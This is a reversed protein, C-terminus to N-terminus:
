EQPYALGLRMALWPYLTVGFFAVAAFSLFQLAAPGMVWGAALLLALLLVLLVLGFVARAFRQNATGHPSMRTIRWRDAFEPALGTITGAAIVAAMDSWLLLICVAALALALLLRATGSLPVLRTRGAPLRLVVLLIVLGVLAGGAIDQPYHVGLAMRAWGMAVIYVGLAWWVWRKGIAAVLVGLVPLTIGVHGSPFGFTDDPLFSAQVLEPFAVFPRPRQFTLKLVAIAVGSALLALLVRRALTQDVSWYLVFFLLWYIPFSGVVALLHALTQLPEPTNAQVWLVVELGSGAEWTQFLSEM